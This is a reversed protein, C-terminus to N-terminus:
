AFWGSIPAPICDCCAHCCVAERYWYAMYTGKTIRPQIVITNNVGAAFLNIDTCFDIRHILAEAGFVEHSRTAYKIPM